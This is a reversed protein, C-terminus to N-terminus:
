HARTTRAPRGGRDARLVVSAGGTRGTERADEHRRRLGRWINALFKSDIIIIIWWRIELKWM